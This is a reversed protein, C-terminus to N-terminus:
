SRLYDDLVSCVQSCKGGLSHVQSEKNGLHVAGCEGLMGQITQELSGQHHLCSLVMSCMKISSLMSERKHM